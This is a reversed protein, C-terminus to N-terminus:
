PPSTRQKRLTSARSSCDQGPNSASSNAIHIWEFNGSEDDVRMTLFPPMGQMVFPKRAAWVLSRWVLDDLRFVPGHVSTSMWAYSGWQVARGVGYTTVAVFPQAGTVAVATVDGPLTVGALSMQGTAIAEGPAHREAIYHLAGNPFTVGSGSVAGGYGFGFVIVSSRIVRALAMGLCLM